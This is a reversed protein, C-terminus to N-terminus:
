KGGSKEKGTPRDEVEVATGITVTGERSIKKTIVTAETMDRGFLPGASAILPSLTEKMNVGQADVTMKTRWLLIKQSRAAAAYDYASATVFYCSHFADEVLHSILASNKGNIFRQFPSSRDPSVPSAYSQLSYNLNMNEIESALANRLATAFAGGGILAAREFLDQQLRLDHTILPLLEEASVPPPLDSDLAEVPLPPDISHSGYNFIILLSPPHAPLEAPIYGATALSRQMAHELDALPPTAEKAAPASGTQIFKGVQQVYYVPQNPAPPPLKRGAPTMETIVNFDLNPRKQFAKPLLNFVFNSRLTPIKKADSADPPSAATQASLLWPFVLSGACILLFKKM